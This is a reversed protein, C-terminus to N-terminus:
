QRCFVSLVSKHLGDARSWLQGGGSAVWSWCHLQLDCFVGNSANCLWAKWYSSFLCLVSLQGWFRLKIRKLMGMGGMAYGHVAKGRSKQEAKVRIPHKWGNIHWWLLWSVAHSLCNRNKSRPLLEVLSSCSSCGHCWDDQEGTAKTMSM